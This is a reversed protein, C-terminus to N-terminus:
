EDLPNGGLQIGCVVGGFFKSGGGEFGTWFNKPWFDSRTGPKAGFHHKEGRKEEFISM